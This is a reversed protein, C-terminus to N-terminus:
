YIQDTLGTLVSVRSRREAVMESGASGDEDGRRCM